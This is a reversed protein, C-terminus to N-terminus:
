GDLPPPHVHAFHTLLAHHLALCRLCWSVQKPNGTGYVFGNLERGDQHRFMHVESVAKISRPPMADVVSKLAEYCEWRHPPERPLHAHAHCTPVGFVGCYKSSAMVHVMIDGPTSPIHKRRAM